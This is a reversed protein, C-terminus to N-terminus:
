LVEVGVSISVEDTVKVAVADLNNKPLTDEEDKVTASFEM